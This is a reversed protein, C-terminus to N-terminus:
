TVVQCVDRTSRALVLTDAVVKSQHLPRQKQRHDSLAVLKVKHRSTGNLPLHRDGHSGLFAQEHPEAWARPAGIAAYLAPSGDGLILAHASSKGWFVWGPRCAERLCLVRSDCTVRSLSTLSLM